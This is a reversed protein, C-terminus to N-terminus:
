FKEKLYKATLSGKQSVLDQPKGAFVVQGGADGGEPGM